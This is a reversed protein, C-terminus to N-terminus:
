SGFRRSLQRTLTRRVFHRVIPNSLLRFAIPFLALAARPSSGRRGVIPLDMIDARDPLSSMVSKRTSRGAVASGVLIGALVAFVWLILGPWEMVLELAAGAARSGREALMDKM